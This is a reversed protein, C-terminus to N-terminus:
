IIVLFTILIGVGFIRAMIGNNGFGLNKGLNYGPNGYGLDKGLSNGLNM